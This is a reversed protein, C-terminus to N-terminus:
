AALLMAESRPAVLAGLGDALDGAEARRVRFDWQRRIFVSTAGFRRAERWRWLVGVDSEKGGHECVGIVRVSFGDQAAFIVVGPIRVWDMDATTREFQYSEGSAGSFNTRDILM